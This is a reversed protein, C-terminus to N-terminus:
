LDGIIQARFDEYYTEFVDDKFEELTMEYVDPFLRCMQMLLKHLDLLQNRLKALDDRLQGNRQAVIECEKRLRALLAADSENRKRKLTTSM